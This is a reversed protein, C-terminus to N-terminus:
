ISIIKPHISRIPQFGYIQKSDMNVPKLLKLRISSRPFKRDSPRNNNDKDWNECILIQINLIFELIARFQGIEIYGFISRDSSFHGLIRAALVDRFQGNESSIPWLAAEFLSQIRILSRFHTIPGIHLRILSNLYRAYIHVWRM